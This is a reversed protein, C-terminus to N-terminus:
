VLEVILRRASKLALYTPESASCYQNALEMAEEVNTVAHIYSNQLQRALDENTILIVSAQKQVIPKALIYAGHAGLSFMERKKVDRVVEEPTKTLLWEKFTGEAGWGDPCEALLVISGGPKVTEMASIIAKKGQVLDWDYPYGGPSALVIDATQSKIRFIKDSDACALRHAKVSDGSYIQTIRDKGDLVACTFWDFRFHQMFEMADQHMPNSDLEGIRTDPHTLWYHNADISSSHAIGPIILKRSGSYGMLYSPEIYSIGCIFDYQQIIQNVKIPTGRTTYGFDLHISDDFADHQVVSYNDFVESTLFDRLDTETMPGHRGLSIGITVFIDRERCLELFPYMLPTPSPRTIDVTLILVSKVGQLKDELPPSAVPHTFSDSLLKNLNEVPETKSPMFVGIYRDSPINFQYVNKGYELQLKTDM